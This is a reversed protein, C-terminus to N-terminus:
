RDDDENASSSAYTYAQKLKVQEAVPLGDVLKPRYRAESVAERIARALRASNTTEVIAVNAVSGDPLVTFTVLTFMGDERASEPAPIRYDLRQPRAFWSDAFETSGEKAAVLLSWAETYAEIGERSNGSLVHWDGLRILADPLASEDAGATAKCVQVARELAERCERAYYRDRECTFAIATLPAVLRPDGPGHSREVIEIARRYIKRAHENEGWVEYWEALGFLAPILEPSDEGVRKEEAQFALLRARTEELYHRGDQRMRRSPRTLPVTAVAGDAASAPTRPADEDQAGAILPFWMM